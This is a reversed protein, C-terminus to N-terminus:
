TTLIDRLRKIWEDLEKAYFEWVILDGEWQNTASNEDLERVFAEDTATRYAFLEYSCGYKNEWPSLQNQLEAIARSAREAALERAATDITQELPDLVYAYADKIQVAVTM